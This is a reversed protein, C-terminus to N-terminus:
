GSRARVGAVIRDIISRDVTAVEGPAQPVAAADAKDTEGVADRLGHKRWARSGGRVAERYVEVVSM